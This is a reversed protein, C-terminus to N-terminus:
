TTARLIPSNNPTGAYRNVSDYFTSTSPMAANLYANYDKLTVGFANFLLGTKDGNANAGAAYLNAVFADYNTSIKSADYIRADKITGSEEVTFLGGTRLTIGAEGYVGGAPTSSTTITKSVGNIYISPINAKNARNYRVAIHYWTDFSAGAIEGAWVGSTTYYNSQLRIILNNSDNLNASIYYGGTGSRLCLFPTAYQDTFSGNAKIKVWASWLRNDINLEQIYGFDVEPYVGGSVYSTDVACDLLTKRVEKLIWSYNVNVANASVGSPSAEWSMGHIRFAADTESDSEAIRVVDGVDTDLFAQAHADSRNANMTVSNIKASPESNEAVVKAAFNKGEDLKDKYTQNISTTHYGYEEYSAQNEQIDTIPSESDIAFSYINLATLYGNQSSNNAVTVEAGSAGYQLSVAFDDTLETGAVTEETYAQYFLGSLVFAETPPTFPATYKAEGKIMRFEDVLVTAYASVYKGIALFDTTSGLAAASTWTDQIVGNQFAFFTTGSRCVAYHTWANTPIVGLFRSNAIDWSSGNSSMYVRASTGDSYGLVFPSYTTDKARVIIAEGSDANFRYEWWEITFDGTGLDYDQSQTVAEAYAGTGDLYLSSRGFKKEQTWLVADLSVDWAKGSEEKISTENTGEDFHILTTPYAETPTIAAVLRKSSPDRFEITFVRQEGAPIYTPSQLEYLLSANQARSSPYVSTYVKNILNDGYSMQMDIMTNDIEVDQITSGSLLLKDGTEQLLFDGNEQLLYSTTLPVSITKVSQNELFGTSNKFVLKEGTTKDKQLYMWGLESNALKQFESYAFTKLATDSFVYPFVNNGTDFETDLPQIPMANVITTLAEDATADEMIAPNNMPYKAAYDLWDLVVVNVSRLTGGTIIQMQDIAGYFRIHSDNFVAKIKCGKKWDNSRVNSGGPLYRGDNNKVSFTMQGTEAVFSYPKNDRIGWSARAGGEVLVDSTIDTWSSDLYAYFKLTITTM